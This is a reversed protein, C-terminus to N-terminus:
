YQLTRRFNNLDAGCKRHRRCGWTLGVMGGRAGDKLGGEFEM